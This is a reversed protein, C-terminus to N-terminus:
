KSALVNGPDSVSTGVTVDQWQRQEAVGFAQLPLPLRARQNEGSGYAPIHPDPARPPPLMRRSPAPVPPRCCRWQCSWTGLSPCLPM